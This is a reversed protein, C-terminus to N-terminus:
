GSFLSGIGSVVKTLGIFGVMQSHATSDQGSGMLGGLLTGLGKVVIGRNLAHQPPSPLGCVSATMHFAGVSAVVSAISATAMGVFMAASFTPM